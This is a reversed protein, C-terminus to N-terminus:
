GDKKKYVKHCGGCNEGTLKPWGAKLTAEDKISAEALKIDAQFKEFLALFEAKKEWVVPLAATDGGTKTDDGFLDKMKSASDQFTKLATQVTALQFPAEGKLMAGVPKNAKGMADFAMQRAKITEVNQALAAASGVALAAAVLLTLRM